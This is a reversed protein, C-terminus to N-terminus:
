ICSKPATRKRHEGQIAGVRSNSGEENALCCVGCELSSLHNLCIMKWEFFVKYDMWMSRVVWAKATTLRRMGDVRPGMVNFM